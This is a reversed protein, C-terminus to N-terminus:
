FPKFDSPKKFILKVEDPQVFITGQDTALYLGEKSVLDVQCNEGNALLEVWDGEEVTTKDETAVQSREAQQSASIEKWEEISTIGGTGCDKLNVSRDSALRAKWNTSAERRGIPFFNYAPPQISAIAVIEDEAPDLDAHSVPTNIAALEDMCFYRLTNNVNVAAGITTAATVIGHAGVLEVGHRDSTIEVKDGVHFVLTEPQTALELKLETTLVAEVERDPVHQVDEVEPALLCAAVPKSTAHYRSPPSKTTDTEGLHKSQSLSMGWLKLEYKFSTLRKAERVEFGAAVSHHVALFEGWQKAKTRSNFGGYTAAIVGTKNNRFYAISDSVPILDFYDPEKLTDTTTSTEVATVDIYKFGHRSFGIQALEVSQGKLTTAPADELQCCFPTALLSAWECSQGALPEPNITIAVELDGDNNPQPNIPQNGGDGNSGTFLNLVASKLNAIAGPALATVKAIAGKLAELSGDAIFEAENLLTIRETHVAIQAQLAAVQFELSSIEPQLISLM